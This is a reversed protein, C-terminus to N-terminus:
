LELLVVFVQPVFCWIYYEKCTAVLLSRYIIYRSVGACQSLAQFHGESFLSRQYSKLGSKKKPLHHPITVLKKYLFFFFIVLKKYLFILFFYICSQIIGQM